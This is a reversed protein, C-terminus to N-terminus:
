ISLKSRQNTEFIIEVCKKVFWEKKTTALFELDFGGIGGPPESELLPILM